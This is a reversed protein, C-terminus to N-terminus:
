QEALVILNPPIADFHGSELAERQNGALDAPQLRTWSNNAYTYWAAVTGPPAPWHIPLAITAAIGSNDELELYETM